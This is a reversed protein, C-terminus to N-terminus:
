LRTTLISNLFITQINNLSFEFINLIINPYLGIFILVVLLITPIIIEIISIDQILISNRNQSCLGFYTKQIMVLSCLASIILSFAVICVLVSHNFFTGLLIMFEGVFNGTGPIGLNAVAFCLSFGPIWIIDSWLGGMSRMDRTRTYKFLRGILYYLASTSLAYSITHVIIGQYAIKNFSYIAILVFGMHSISMYAILRKIDTQSFSVCASYFITIVGCWMFINSYIYSSHPFLVINFRLLAYVAPKLLIGSIDLSGTIPSYTHFDPLWSHFPVIPIKICFALFFGLMICTELFPNLSINRLVDYDFSLIHTSVYNSHVLFLISCLLILGSCQSYMFFKNAFFNRNVCMPKNKVKYGWLVMMFYIPFIIIEWFFFFLFLDISLFIGISFSLIWLLNLYFFGINKEINNWSSLISIIGLFSTLILMIVSLGDAALHFTIGFRSIWPSNYEFDWYPDYMRPFVIQSNYLSLAVSLILMISMIMLAIYHSIKINYKEFMWCLIGGFFPIMIFIPLLM